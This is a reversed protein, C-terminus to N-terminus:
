GMRDHSRLYAELEDRNKTARLEGEIKSTATKDGEPVPKEPGKGSDGMSPKPKGPNTGITQKIKRIHDIKSRVDMGKPILDHYKEDLSSMEENLVSDFFEITEATDKILVDYKPKLDEYLKKFEEKKELAEKEAQEKEAELTQLKKKRKISEETTKRLNKATVKFKNYMTDMLAKAKDADFDDASLTEDISQQIKALEEADKDAASKKNGDADDEPSPDPEKVNGDEDDSDDAFLQLDFDFPLAKDDHYM